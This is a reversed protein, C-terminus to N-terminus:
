YCCGMSANDACRTSSPRLCCNLTRRMRWLTAVNLSERGCLVMFWSVRQQWISREVPRAFRVFDFTIGTHCKTCEFSLPCLLSVSCVKLIEPSVHKEFAPASPLASVDGENLAEQGPLLYSCIGRKVLERHPASLNLSRPILGTEEEDRGWLSSVLHCIAFVMQGQPTGSHSSPNIKRSLLLFSTM